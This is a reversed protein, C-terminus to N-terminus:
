LVSSPQEVILGWSCRGVAQVRSIEITRQCLDPLLIGDAQKDYRGSVTEHTWPFTELFVFELHSIAKGVAHQDITIPM